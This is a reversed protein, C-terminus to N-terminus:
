GRYLRRTGGDTAAAQVCRIYFYAATLIAISAGGIIATRDQWRREERKKWTRSDRTTVLATNNL